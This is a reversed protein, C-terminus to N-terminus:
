RHVLLTAYYGPIVQANRTRVVETEPVEDTFPGLPVNPDAWAAVHAVMAANTPVRVPTGVLHLVTSPVEVTPSQHPMIDGLLGLYRDHFGSLGEGPM